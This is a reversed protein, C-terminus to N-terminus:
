MPRISILSMLRARSRQFHFISANSKHKIAPLPGVDLHPHLDFSLRPSAALGAEAADEGAPAQGCLGQM